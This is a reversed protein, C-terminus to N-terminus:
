LEEIRLAKDDIIIDFFPKALSLKHHKAGWSKLQTKTLNRLYRMRSKNGRDSSGRSTYYVVRYGKEYLGNIKAINVKNPQAAAYVRLDDRYFCVTEDIDVYVVLQGTSGKSHVEAEYNM